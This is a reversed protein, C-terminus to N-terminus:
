GNKAQPSHVFVVRNLQISYKKHRKAKAIIQIEIGIATASKFIINFELQEVNTVSSDTLDQWGGANCSAGKQRMEIASNHLRFGYNENNEAHNFQGNQDKDYRYLICSNAKEQPHKSIKIPTLFTDSFLKPQNVATAIDANFGARKIDNSILNAVTNIEENLRLNISYHSSNAAATGVFSTLGAIASLGIAMAILLEILSFGTTFSRSNLM